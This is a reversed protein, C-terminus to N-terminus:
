RLADRQIHFKFKFNSKTPFYSEFTEGTIITHRILIPMNRAALKILTTDWDQDSTVNTSQLSNTGTMKILTTSIFNLTLFRQKTEIALTFFQSHNQMHDFGLAHIVEHQITGRRMCGNKNVSVIQEGGVKGLYSSCGSKSRFTIYDPQTKRTVFKLCTYAELVKLASM